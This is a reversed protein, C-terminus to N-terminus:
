KSGPLAAIRMISSFPVGPSPVRGVLPRNQAPHLGPARVRRPTASGYHSNSDGSRAVHVSLIGAYEECQISNPRCDRRLVESRRDSTSRPSEPSPGALGARPVPTTISPMAPPRIPTVRCGCRLCKIADWQCGPVQTAPSTFIRHVFFVSNQRLCRSWLSNEPSRMKNPVRTEERPLRVKWPSLSLFFKPQFVDLQALLSM